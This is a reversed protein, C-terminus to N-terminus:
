KFQNLSYYVKPGLFVSEAKFETGCGFDVMNTFSIVERYHTGMYRWMSLHELTTFHIGNSRKTNKQFDTCVSDM